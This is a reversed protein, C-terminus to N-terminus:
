SHSFFQETNQKTGQPTSIYHAKDDEELPIYFPDVKPTPISIPHPNPPPLNGHMDDDTPILHPRNDRHVRLLPTSKQVRPLPAIHPQNQSHAKTQKPM